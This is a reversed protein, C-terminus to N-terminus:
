EWESPEIGFWCRAQEIADELNQHWTDGSHSTNRSAYQLLYGSESTIIEFDVVANEVATPKPYAAGPPLWGSHEEGGFQIQRGRLQKVVGM